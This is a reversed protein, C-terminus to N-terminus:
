LVESVDYLFYSYIHENVHLMSAKESWCFVEDILDKPLQTLSKEITEVENLTPMILTTKM